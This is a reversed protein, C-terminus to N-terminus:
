QCTSSAQVEAPAHEIYKQCYCRHEGKRWYKECVSIMRQAIEESIQAQKEKSAAIAAAELQLAQQKKLQAAIAKQKKEEELKRQKEKEAALERAKEKEQGVLRDMSMQAENKAATNGCDYEVPKINKYAAPPSALCKKIPKSAVVPVVAAGTVVVPVDVVAPRANLALYMDKFDSIDYTLELPTRYPKLTVVLRSGAQLSMLTDKNLRMAFSGASGDIVCINQKVTLGQQLFRSHREQNNLCWKFLPSQQGDIEIDKIEFQSFSKPKTGAADKTVNLKLQENDFSLHYYVGKSRSSTKIAQGTDKDIKWTADTGVTM